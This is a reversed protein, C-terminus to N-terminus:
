PCPSPPQEAFLPCAHVLPPLPNFVTLFTRVDEVSSGKCLFILKTMVKLPRPSMTMLSLICKGYHAALMSTQVIKQCEKCVALILNDKAPCLGFLRMDLIFSFDTSLLVFEVSLYFLFPYIANAQPLSM